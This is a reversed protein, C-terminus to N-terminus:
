PLAGLVPILAGAGADIYAKVGDHNARNVSEADGIATLKLTDSTLEVEIMTNRSTRYKAAPADIPADPNLVQAPIELSTYASQCGALLLVILLLAFAALGWATLRRSQEKIEYSALAQAHREKNDSYSM